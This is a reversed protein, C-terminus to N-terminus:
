SVPIWLFDFQHNYAGFGVNYTTARYTQGTRLESHSNNGVKLRQNDPIRYYNASLYLYYAVFIIALLGVIILLLVGVKKLIRM